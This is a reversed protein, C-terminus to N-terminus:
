SSFFHFYTRNLITTCRFVLYVFLLNYWNPKRLMSHPLLFLSISTYLYEKIHWRCIGNKICDFATCFYYLKNLLTTRKTCALWKNSYLDNKNRNTNNIESAYKQGRNRPFVVRWSSKFFLFLTFFLFIALIYRKKQLNQVKPSEIGRGALLCKFVFRTHHNNYM